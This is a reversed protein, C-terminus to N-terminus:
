LKENNTTLTKRYGFGGALFFSRSCLGLDAWVSQGCEVEVEVRQAKVDIRVEKVEWPPQVGIAHSFLEKDNMGGGNARSGGSGGCCRGEAFVRLLDTDPKQLLFIGWRAGWLGWQFIGRFHRFFRPINQVSSLSFSVSDVIIKM